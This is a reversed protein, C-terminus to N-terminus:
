RTTKPDNRIPSFVCLCFKGLFFGLVIGHFNQKRTKKKIHKKDSGLFGRKKTGSKQCNLPLPTYFDQAGLVRFKICGQRQITLFPLAEWCRLHIFILRGLVLATEYFPAKPSHARTGTKPVSPYGFTGEFQNKYRPACSHVTSPFM